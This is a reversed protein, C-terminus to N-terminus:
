DGEKASSVARRHYSEMAEIGFFQERCEHGLQVAGHVPWTMHQGPGAAPCQSHLAATRAQRQPSRGRRARLNPSLFISSSYSLTCAEGRVQHSLHGDSGAREWSMEWIARLLSAEQEWGLAHPECVVVEQLASQRAGLHQM